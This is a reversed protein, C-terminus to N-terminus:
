RDTISAAFLKPRKKVPCTVAAPLTGGALTRTTPAPTAPRAAMPVAVLRPGLDIGEVHTGLHGLLDFGHAGLEDIEIELILNLIAGGRATIGRRRARFEAFLLKLTEALKCRVHIDHDSRRQDRAAVRRHQPGLVHDLCHLLAADDNVKRGFLAAVALQRDRVLTDDGVIAHRNDAIGIEGAAHACLRGLEIAVVDAM